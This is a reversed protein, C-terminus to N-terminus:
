TENLQVSWIKCDSNQQYGAASSVPDKDDEDDFEDDGYNDEQLEQESDNGYENYMNVDELDAAADQLQVEEQEADRATDEDAHGVSQGQKEAVGEAWEREARVTVNLPDPNPPRTPKERHSAQVQDRASGPASAEEPAVVIRTDSDPNQTALAAAPEPDLPPSASDMGASHRSDFVVPDPQQQPARSSELAELRRNIEDITPDHDERDTPTATLRTQSQVPTYHGTLGLQEEAPKPERLGRQKDPQQSTHSSARRYEPPPFTLANESDESPNLVTARRKRRKGKRKKPQHVARPFGGKTFASNQLRQSPNIRM